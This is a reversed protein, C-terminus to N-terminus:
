RAITVPTGVPMDRILGRLAVDSARPRGLSGRVEGAAAPAPQAAPATAAALLAALLHRRRRTPM